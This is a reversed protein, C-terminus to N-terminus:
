TIQPAPHRKNAKSTSLSQLDTLTSTIFPEDIHKLKYTFSLAPSPFQTQQDALTGSALKAILTQCQQKRQFGVKCTHRWFLKLKEKKFLYYIYSSM